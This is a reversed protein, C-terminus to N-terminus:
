VNIKYLQGPSHSIDALDMFLVVDYQKDLQFKLQNPM